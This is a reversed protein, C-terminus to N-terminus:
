DHDQDLSKRRKPVEKKDHSPNTTYPSDFGIANPFKEAKKRKEAMSLPDHTSSLM